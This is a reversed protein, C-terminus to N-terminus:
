KLCEKCSENSNFFFFAIFYFHFYKQEMQPGHRVKPVILPGIDKLGSFTSIGCSYPFSFSFISALTRSCLGSALGCVLGV